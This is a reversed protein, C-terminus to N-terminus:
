ALAHRQIFEKMRRRWEEELDEHYKLQAERVTGAQFLAEAAALADVVALLRQALTWHREAAFQSRLESRETPFPIALRIAMHQSGEISLDM